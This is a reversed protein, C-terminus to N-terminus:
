FSMARNPCEIICAGCGTCLMPDVIAVDELSIAGELCVNMCIGCGTCLGRTVVM